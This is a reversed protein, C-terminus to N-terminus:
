ATRKHGAARRSHRARLRAIVKDLWAVECRLRYMQHEILLQYGGQHQPAAQFAALQQELADRRQALLQRAEDAPLADIFALGVDSEEDTASLSRRLLQQFAAEGAPTLRYVRKPPRAGERVEEASVWGKAQMKDLLAYATAKKLDTCFALNREIFDHLQYGHTAGQRLLGLLLLERNMTLIQSTLITITWVQITLPTM